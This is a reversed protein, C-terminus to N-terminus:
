DAPEDVTVRTGHDSSRQVADIVRQVALGDQFDPRYTTEGTTARLFEYIEHVFTHEWGIVHGAPWWRDMYPDSDDTVLVTQYGRDDASQVELENPRELSFRVSGNTGHVAISHDNRHGYASRSAELTGVADNEFNVQASYADDVTVDRTGQGDPDPREDVFTTCQGVLDTIDGVLFRALDITHAGLDGLAGGGALEDSYRWSWSSTPDIAGSQLYHGRFHRIEGLEGDEILRKAYQIAPVYRYNFGVGATADSQRAATAMREADDVSAALPKECLVHVDSELARISPDAHLFNPGLNHLVDVEEVASEWDTSIRDFGLRDAATRLATEDRGILVDRNVAPAEPFFMPLRDLANAHAKGMFRYGFFGVDLAVTM